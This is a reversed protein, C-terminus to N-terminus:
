GGRALGFGHGVLISRVLPTDLFEAVRGAEPDAGAVLAAPYVIPTHHRTPIEAVVAVRSEALADTAYVVGLRAASLAVLALAARVNDAEVVRDSVSDWLGLDVLAERAYIGAPVAQTLALALRGRGLRESLATPDGLAIPDREHWNGIIVLRNTLLDRRTGPQLAGARELEDMWAVNALVVLDAPLGAQVQRTLASSGAYILTLTGGTQASWAAAIDDFAGRLSAAALVTFDSASGASACVSCWLCLASLLRLITQRM